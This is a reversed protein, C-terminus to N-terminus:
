KVMIPFYIILFSSGFIATSSMEFRVPESKQRVSWIKEGLEAFKQDLEALIKM